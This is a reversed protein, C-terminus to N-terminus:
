PIRELVLPNCSYLRKIKYITNILHLPCIDAKRRATVVLLSYNEAEELVLMMLSPFPFSELERLINDM